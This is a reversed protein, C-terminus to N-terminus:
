AFAMNKHLFVFAFEYQAATKLNQRVLFENHDFVDDSAASAHLLCDVDHAHMTADDRCDAHNHIAAACGFWIKATRKHAYDYHIDLREGGVFERGVENFYVDNLR